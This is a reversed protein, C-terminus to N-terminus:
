GLNAELLAYDGNSELKLAFLEKQLIYFSLFSGHGCGPPRPFLKLKHGRMEDEMDRTGEGPGPGQAARPHLQIRPSSLAPHPDCLLASGM